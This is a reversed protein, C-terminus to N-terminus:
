SKKSARSGFRSLTEVIRGTITEPESIHGLAEKGCVLHGEIPDIFQHGLRKLKQINEQTLPNQYMRDNMAPAIVVPRDAALLVCTALDNALGAATRAIFNASAPAVLILDALEALSTHIVGYPSQTTFFDDYVAEGSVARITLPTVFKKGAETLVTIVRAGEERLSQILDPAKYAAISGTIILLVTKNKLRKQTPKKSRM